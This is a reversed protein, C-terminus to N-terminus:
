QSSFMDDSDVIINKVDKSLKQLAEKGKDLQTTIKITKGFRKKKGNTNQNREMNLVEEM